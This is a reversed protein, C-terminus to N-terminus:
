FSLTLVSQSLAVGLKFLEHFSEDLLIIFQFQAFNVKGKVGQERFCGGRPSGEFFDVHISDLLHSM